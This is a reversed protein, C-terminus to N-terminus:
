KLFMLKRTVAYQGAEMRYFYVGSPLVLGADNRGDWTLSHDGAAHLAHVLTRVERGTLDYISLRVVERQPLTFSITTTPNFPNPYNQDLAFREPMLTGGADVALEGARLTVARVPGNSWGGYSLLTDADAEITWEVTLTEDDASAMFEVFYSSINGDAPPGGGERRIFVASQNPASGDSLSATLRMEACWMGAYLTFTQMTTSAPVKWRFGNGVGAMWMSGEVNTGTATPTGDTWSFANGYPSSDVYVIGEGTGGEPDPNDTIAESIIPNDVGDKRTSDRVDYTTNYQIWDLTGEATLDVAGPLVNYHHLRIHGAYEEEAVKVLSLDDCYLEAGAADDWSGMYVLGPENGAPLDAPTTFTDAIQTWDTTPSFNMLGQNVGTNDWIGFWGTPSMVDGAWNHEDGKVWASLIYETEPEWTVDQAIGAWANALSTIMVDNDGGHPTGTGLEVVPDGGEVYWGTSTDITTTTHEEFGPDTFMNQAGASAVLFMVLAGMIPFALLPKRM